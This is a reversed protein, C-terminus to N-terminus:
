HCFLRDQYFHEGPRQGRKKRAESMANDVDRALSPLSLLTEFAQNDYLCAHLLNFAKILDGISKVQMDCEATKLKVLRLALIFYMQWGPITSRSFWYEQSQTEKVFRSPVDYFDLYPHLEKQVKFWEEEVVDDEELTWGELLEHLPMGLMEKDAALRHKIKRHCRLWVFRMFLSM